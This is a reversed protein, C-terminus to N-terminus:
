RAAELLARLREAVAAPHDVVDRGLRARVAPTTAALSSLVQLHDSAGDRDLEGLRSERALAFTAEAQSLPEFSTEAQHVLESSLLLAPTARAARVLDPVLLEQKRGELLPCARWEGPGATAPDLFIGRRLALVELGSGRRALLVSDDSVLAWGARALGLVLTSKGTGSAGVVLCARGELAVAGAHLAYLGRLRLQHFLVCSFVHLPLPTRTWTTSHRGDAEIRTTATPSTLWLSAGDRAIAVDLHQATTRLQTPAPPPGDVVELALPASGGSSPTAGFHALLEAGLALAGAPGTVVLAFGHLTVELRGGDM